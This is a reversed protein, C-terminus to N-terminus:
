GRQLRVIVKDLERSCQVVAESTLEHSETLEYLKAQLQLKQKILAGKNM